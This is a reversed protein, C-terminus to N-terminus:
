GNFEDSHHFLRKQKSNEIQLKTRNRSPFYLKIRDSDKTSSLKQLFDSHEMSAKLEM